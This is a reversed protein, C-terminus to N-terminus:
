KPANNPVLNVIEAMTKKAARSYRAITEDYLYQEQITRPIALSQVASGYNILRGELSNIKEMVQRPLPRIDGVSEKIMQTQALLIDLDDNFKSRTEFNPTYRDSTLPKVKGRGETKHEMPRSVGITRSIEDKAQKERVKLEKSKSTIQELGDRVGEAKCLRKWESRSVGVWALGSGFAFPPYPSGLTDEFGGAGDAIKQWIPSTKLAVMQKRLAGNWQCSDGAAQWRKQWDGRPKKRAGTRTLKWAPMMMLQLPDESSALQGLSRAQKVNTDLILQIRRSSSLDRIDGPKAPPVKVKSGKFGITSDYGLDQLTRQLLTEAKQPTFKRSAVEQLRQKVMDIYRQSTTRASFISHDKIKDSWTKIRVSPQSTALGDQQSLISEAMLKDSGPIAPM